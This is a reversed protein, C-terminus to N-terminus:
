YPGLFNTLHHQVLGARNEHSHGAFREAEADKVDGQVDCKDQNMTEGQQKVQKWVM